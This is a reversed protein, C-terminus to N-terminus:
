TAETAWAVADALTEPSWEHGEDRLELTVDVDGGSLM